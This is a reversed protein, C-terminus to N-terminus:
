IVLIIGVIILSAGVVRGLTIAEGLFTAACLITILPSSSMIITVLSVSGRKIASFYALDGILTALIAEVILLGICNYSINKLQVIEKNAILIGLIMFATFTTRIFLGVVPSIDKLGMKIFIPAVGWCVMGIIALLFVM